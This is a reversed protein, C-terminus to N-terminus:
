EAGMRCVQLLEEVEADLASEDLEILCSCTLWVACGEPLTIGVHSLVQFHPELCNKYPGVQPWVHPDIVISRGREAADWYAADYIAHPLKESPLGIYRAKM